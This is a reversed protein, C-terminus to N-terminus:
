KASSTVDGGGAHLRRGHRGDDARGHTRRNRGTRRHRPLPQARHADRRDHLVGHLTRSRERGAHHRDVVEDRPRRELRVREQDHSRQGSDRRCRGQLRSRQRGQDRRSHVARVRLGGGKTWARRHRLHGGQGSAVGRAHGGRDPPHRARRAAERDGGKGRPPLRCGDAARRRAVHRRSDQDEARVHREESGGTSLVLPEHVM